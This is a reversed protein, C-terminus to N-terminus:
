RVERGTTWPVGAQDLQKFYAPVTETQLRRVLPAIEKAKTELETLV